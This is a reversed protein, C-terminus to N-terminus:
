IYYVYVDVDNGTAENILAKVVEWDGGALGCGIKPIAISNINFDKLRKFCKTISGYDLYLKGDYGFDEQTFMNLIVIDKTLVEQVEGLIKNNFNHYESKVEPYKDLLVKAVGSGMKNRCNVGHGIYVIDTDLISGKIERVIM